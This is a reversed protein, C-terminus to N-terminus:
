DINLIQDGNNRDEDISDETRSRRDDSRPRNLNDKNKMEQTITKDICKRLIKNIEKQSYTNSTFIIGEGM